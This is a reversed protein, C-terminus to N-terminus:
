APYIQDWAKYLQKWDYYSEVTERGSDALRQALPADKIVNLVATAFPEGEDALLINDGHRTRLGEAGVTTSVIPLGWCWADLIKVRMGAGSMLPVVFVATEALYRAPDAVYGTVEARTVSQLGPVKEGGKGIVTLVASPVERAVRPWVHEVFWSVGESNPPWHLGGLFTVRFPRERRLRPRMVPDTAIPIVADCGVRDGASPLVARRDEDTVWVVRDFRGCANREFAELKAAENRLLARAIPNREYEAMRRPVMFVANHQDLVRLGATVGNMGYPAMWLQDLHLADFTKDRTIQRLREWMATVQDRQILFPTSGVLSRLGDRVDRVRSRTLPVLDISSCLQRLPQVLEEPEGRSFSLLHIDHGAEALYRIVHYARVKPGADLPFPLIQTLFLIRM